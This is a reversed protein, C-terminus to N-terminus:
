FSSITTSFITLGCIESVQLPDKVYDSRLKRYFAVTTWHIFGLTGVLKLLFQLGEAARRLV